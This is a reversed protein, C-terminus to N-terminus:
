RGSRMFQEVRDKFEKYVALDQECAGVRRSLEKDAVDSKAIEAQVINMVNHFRQSDSKDVHLRLDNMAILFTKEMDAFRRTIGLAILVSTSAAGFISAVLAAGAALM